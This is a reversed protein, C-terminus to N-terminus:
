LAGENISRTPHYNSEKSTRLTCLNDKDPAKILNILAELQSEVSDVFGAKLSQLLSPELSSDEKGMDMRVVEEIVYGLIPMELRNLTNLFPVHVEQKEETSSPLQERVDAWGIFPIKTGSAVMLDLGVNILESIDRVAVGPLKEELMSKTMISVQAGTDWLATM